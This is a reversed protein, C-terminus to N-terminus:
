HKQQAKSWRNYLLRATIGTPIFKGAISFIRNITGPIYVKKGCLSKSITRHAVKELHNTTVGGWFGQAEIAKICESTTPMGGPCLALVSVNKHKLEQGVAISFDLLFRKSAAYTAKLPMPYMSALSSVFVIYFRGSRRRLSLAKYTIRLSAEINVRLIKSVNDFNQEVFGGEYDIGAVNLLMDLQIGAEKAFTILSDVESDNTIDCPKVYVCVDYQREIGTKVKGLGEVNIDTLLIDYGREACEIAFARGLGGSAGTILVAM